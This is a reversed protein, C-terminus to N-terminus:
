PTNSRTSIRPSTTMPSPILSLAGPIKKPSRSPFHPGVAGRKLIARSGTSPVVFRELPDGLAIETMAAVSTEESLLCGAM